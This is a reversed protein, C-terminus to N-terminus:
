KVKITNKTKLEESKPLGLFLVGDTYSASINSQDVNKPLRFTRKFAGYKTEFSYYHGEKKEYKSKREGSITLLNDSIEIEFDEKKMGPVVLQLEFDKENEIIDVEPVFRLAEKQPSVSNDFLRNFIGNFSPAFDDYNSNYRVLNM